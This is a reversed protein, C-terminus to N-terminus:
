NYSALLKLGSYGADAVLLIYYIGASAPTFSCSEVNGGMYPRCDYAELAPYQGFRVYLDADGPGGSIAIQVGSAGAPVALSFLQQSGTTGTLGSLPVGTALPTPTLASFQLAAGLHVASFAAAGHLLLYWYGATPAGIKCFDENGAASSTCLANQATPLQGYTVSLDADGSGCCTNLLLDNAGVPVWM